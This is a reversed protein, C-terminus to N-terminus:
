WTINIQGNFYAPIQAHAFSIILGQKQMIVLSGLELQLDISSCIPRGAMVGLKFRSGTSKYWGDIPEIPNVCDLYGLRYTDKVAESNKIKTFATHQWAVIIGKNWKNKVFIAAANLKFGLGNMSGARNESYAMYFANSVITHWNNNLKIVMTQGLNVRWAQSITALPATKVSVGLYFRNYNNFETILHNYGFTTVVQPELGVNTFLLHKNHAAPNSIIIQSYAIQGFMVLIFLLYREKM